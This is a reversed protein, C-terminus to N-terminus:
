SGFDEVLAIAKEFGSVRIGGELKRRDRERLSDEKVPLSVLRDENGDQCIVLNEERLAVLYGSESVADEAEKAQAKGQPVAFSALMMGMCAVVSFLAVLGALLATRRRNEACTKTKKSGTDEPVRKKAM